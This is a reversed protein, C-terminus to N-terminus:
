RRAMMCGYGLVTRVVLESLNRCVSHVDPKAYRHSDEGRCDCESGRERTDPRQEDAHLSVEPRRM